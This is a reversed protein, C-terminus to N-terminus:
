RKVEEKKNEKGNNVKGFIHTFIMECWQCHYWLRFLGAVFFRCRKANEVTKVSHFENKGLVRTISGSFHLIWTLDAKVKRIIEM